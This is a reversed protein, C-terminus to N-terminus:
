KGELYPKGAQYLLLRKSLDAAFTLDGAANAIGIAQEATAAAADFEGSAAQAASLTDLINAVRNGTAANIEQAIRLAEAPDRITDDPHTAFLWALNNAAVHNGPQSDLGSKYHTVAKAAEGQAALLAAFGFNALVHEPKQALALDYHKRAEAVQGLRSRLQALTHHGDADDPSLRLAIEFNAAANPWDKKALFIRGLQTASPASNPDLKLAATYHYAAADLDNANRLVDGFRFQISAEHEMRSRRVEPLPILSGGLTTSRLMRADLDGASHNMDAIVQDVAVPGKYIVSLRGQADVLFSTPVPLPRNLGVLSDHYQQLATVLPETATTSPFPFGLKALVKAPDASASAANAGIGDVNLALVDVGAARLDAARDGFQGLEHICPVCWTAWLNILLARGEGVGAKSGDSRKFNLRPARVLTIAPIRAIETSQGPSPTSATLKISGSARQPLAKADPDGQTIRYRRDVELDSFKEVSGDPWRVTVHEIADGRGLGFHLWKSSQSIFGEGARLTQVLREGERGGRRKVEVRAGIADRNNKKADGLLRLAVFHNGTNTQNRMLRLRPSNRNSIWLDLDGDQDWDSVAVARGDDPFDLGSGASLDAFRGDGSNLFCCNREHGSFARGADIMASLQRHADGSGAAPNDEQSDITKPV